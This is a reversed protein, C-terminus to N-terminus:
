RPTCGLSGMDRARWVLNLSEVCTIHCFILKTYIGRQALRRLTHIVLRIYFVEADISNLKPYNPSTPHVAIVKERRFAIECHRQFSPWHKVGIKEGTTVAKGGSSLPYIKTGVVQYDQLAQQAQEFNDDTAGFYLYQKGLNLAASAQNIISLYENKM